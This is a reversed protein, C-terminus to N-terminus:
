DGAGFGAMLAGATAMVLWITMALGVAGGRKLRLLRECGITVLIIWWLNFLDVRMLFTRMTLSMEPSGLILDLSLTPVADAVDALRRVEPPSLWWNFGVYATFLLPHVVAAVSAVATARSFKTSGGLITAGAWIVVAVILVVLLVFLTQAVAGVAAFREFTRVMQAIQEPDVDQGRNTMSEIIGVRAFQKSVDLNVFALGIMAATVWLLIWLSALPRKDLVDYAHGPAFIANITPGLVLAGSGIDDIEEEDRIEHADSM